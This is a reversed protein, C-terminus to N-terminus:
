LEIVAGTSLYHVKEGMIEKLTKYADTGTCHCTYYMKGSQLLEKGLQRVFAEGACQEKISSYLHFGGVVNDIDIKYEREIQEVINIIGCHACGAILTNTGNECIVLNQEHLFDDQKYEDAQKQYLSFNSKSLFRVSEIESYITLEEDMITRKGSLATFRKNDALSKDIGIYAMRGQRRKSYFEGWVNKNVFVAAKKNYELFAQLGGGHDFHGHSLVLTDVDAINCGLIDANKLFLDDQGTDFLLTHKQTQIFLSLGHQEKCKEKESTNEILVTIKM